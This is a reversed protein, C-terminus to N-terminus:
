LAFNLVLSKTNCQQSDKDDPKSILQIRMDKKVGSRNLYITNQHFYIFFIQSWVPIYNPFPLVIKISKEIKLPYEKKGSCWAKYCPLKKFTIKLTTDSVVAIFKKNKPVNFDM